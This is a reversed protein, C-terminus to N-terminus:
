RGVIELIRRATVGLEDGDGVHVYALERALVMLENADDVKAAPFAQTLTPTCHECM